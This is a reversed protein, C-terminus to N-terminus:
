SILNYLSVMDADSIANTEDDDPWDQNETKSEVNADKTKTWKIAGKQGLPLAIEAPQYKSQSKLADGIPNIANIFDEAEQRNPFKKYKAGKFGKVQKECQARKLIIKYWCFLNRQSNLLKGITM